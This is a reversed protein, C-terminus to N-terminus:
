GTIICPFARLGTNHAMLNGEFTDREDTPLVQEVKHDMSVTLVWDRVEERRDDQSLFFIQILSIKNLM